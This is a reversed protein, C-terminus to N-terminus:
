DKRSSCVLGVIVGAILGTGFAVVVSEAPRRKVLAEAESYGESVRDRVQAAAENVSGGAQGLYERAAEKANAFVGACQDSLENVIREIKTKAQGTKQQILGILQEYDGQAEQLEDDTLQGWQERLLGKLQNWNGAIQEKTAVALERHQFNVQHNADTPILDASQIGFSM